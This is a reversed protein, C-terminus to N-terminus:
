SGFAAVTVGFATAMVGGLLIAAMLLGAAVAIGGGRPTPVTHSSRHGPVDIIAVRRLLPITVAEAATVVAGCAAVALVDTFEASMLSGIGGSAIREFDGLSHLKGPSHSTRAVIRSGADGM